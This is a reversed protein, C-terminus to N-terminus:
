PVATCKVNVLGTYSFLGCLQLTEGQCNQKTCKVGSPCETDTACMQAGLQASTPCPGAQCKSEASLNSIQVTACCLDGGTCDAAQACHLTAQPCSATAGAACSTGGDTNACCTNGSVDCATAGCQIVGADGPLVTGLTGAEVPPLTIGGDPIMFGGDPVSIPFGSDTGNVPPTTGSDPTSTPSSSDPTTTTSADNGGSNDPPNSSSGGCAVLGYGALALAPLSASLVFRLVKM